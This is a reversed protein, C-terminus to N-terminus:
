KEPLEATVSCRYGNSDMHHVVSTVLWEGAVGPRFGVLNLRGEAMLDTRGPLNITLSRSQRYSRQVETQAARKAAAENPYTRRVRRTPTVGAAGLIEDDTYAGGGVEVEVEVWAAAPIDRYVTIVKEVAERRHVSMRWNTVDRPTLTVVPLAEGNASTSEGALVVVLAGGGPKFILGNERAVRTLLNMDTEDLQDIHPLAIEGAKASVAATFGSDGAITAVLTSVTTGDPWSRSKQEVLSNKGGDSKGHAAAYATIRMSDPPGSVEVEDAIYTGVIQASFAYGLAIEIEAGAPPLELRAIPLHDTLTIEATDSQIGATDTITVSSVRPLFVGTVNAGNVSIRLAPKWDM